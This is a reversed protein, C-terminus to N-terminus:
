SRGGAVLRALREYAAIRAELDAIEEARTMGTPNPPYPIGSRVEGRLEALRAKLKEIM